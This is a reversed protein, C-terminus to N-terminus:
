CRMSKPQWDSIKGVDIDSGMREVHSAVDDYAAKVKEIPLDGALWLEMKETSEELCTNLRAREEARDRLSQM